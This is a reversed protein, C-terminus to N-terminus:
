DKGAAEKALSSCALLGHKLESQTTSAVLLRGSPPQQRCRMCSLSQLLAPGVIRIQHGICPLCTVQQAFSNFHGALANLATYTNRCLLCLESHGDKLASWSIM